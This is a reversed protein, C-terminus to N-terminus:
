YNSDAFDVWGGARVLEMNFDSISFPITEKEGDGSIIIKGNEIDTEVSAEVDSFNNFINDIIDSPLEAAIMGCNFM